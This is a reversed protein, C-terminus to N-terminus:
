LMFVFWDILSFHLFKCLGELEWFYWKKLSIKFYDALIVTKWNLFLLDCYAIVLRECLCIYIWLHLCHFLLFKRPMVPSEQLQVVTYSYYSLVQLTSHIFQCILNKLWSCQMQNVVAIVCCSFLIMLCDFCSLMFIIESGSFQCHM